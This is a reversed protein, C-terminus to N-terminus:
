CQTTTWRCTSCRPASSTAPAAIGEQSPQFIQLGAMDATLEPLVDMTPVSLKGGTGRSAAMGVALRVVEDRDLSFLAQAAESSHPTVVMLLAVCIAFLAPIERRM